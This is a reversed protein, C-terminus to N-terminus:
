VGLAFAPGCTGCRESEAGAEEPSQTLGGVTELTALLGSSRAPAEGGSSSSLNGIARDTATKWGGWTVLLTESSIPETIPWKDKAEGRVGVAIPGTRWLILTVVGGLVGTLAAASEPSATIDGIHDPDPM